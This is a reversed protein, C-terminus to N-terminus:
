AAYRGRVAVMFAMDKGRREYMGRAGSGSLQIIDLGCRGAMGNTTDPEQDAFVRVLLSRQENLLEQIVAL